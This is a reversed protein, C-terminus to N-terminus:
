LITRNTTALIMSHNHSSFVDTKTLAYKKRHIGLFKNLLKRFPKPPWKSNGFRVVSYFNQYGLNRLYEIVESSGQFITEKQAEFAIVPFSSLLLKEAGRLAALEHGEVDIKLFDIKRFLDQDIVDDIKEMNFSIKKVIPTKSNLIRGGSVNEEVTTAGVNLPDEFATLTQKRDSAGFNLLKVNPALEANIQLLRFSKLNPEFAIIQDFFNSFFLSYNGINAGIDLCIRRNKLAPFVERELLALEEAEFRGKVFIKISIADFAFCALNPYTAVNHQRRSLLYSIVREEFRGVLYREKHM